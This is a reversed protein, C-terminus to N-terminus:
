QLGTSGFGGAGRDTMSALEREEVGAQVVPAVVLQAIRMGREIVFRKETGDNWDTISPGWYTVFEERFDREVIGGELLEEVLRVSRNLLDM